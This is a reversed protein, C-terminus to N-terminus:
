NEADAAERITVAFCRSKGRRFDVRVESRRILVAARRGRHRTHRVRM